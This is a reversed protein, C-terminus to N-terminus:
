FIIFIGSILDYFMKQAGFGIVAAIIGGALM